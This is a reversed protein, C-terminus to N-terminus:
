REFHNKIKVFFFFLAYLENSKKNRLDILTISGWLSVCLAKNGLFSQTIKM